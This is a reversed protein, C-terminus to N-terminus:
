NPGMLFLLNLWDVLRFNKVAGDPINPGEDAIAQHFVIALAQVQTGAAFHKQECGTLGQKHNTHGERIEVAPLSISWDVLM